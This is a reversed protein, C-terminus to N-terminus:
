IICVQKFQNVTMFDLHPLDYGVFSLNALKGILELVHDPCIKEIKRVAVNETTIGM